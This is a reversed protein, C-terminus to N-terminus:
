CCLSAHNSTAAMVAAGSEWDHTRVVISQLQQSSASSLSGWGLYAYVRTAKRGSRFSDVLTTAERDADCQRSWWWCGAIEVSEAKHTKTMLQLGTKGTSGQVAWSLAVLARVM